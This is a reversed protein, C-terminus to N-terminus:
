SWNCVSQRISRAGVYGRFVYGGKDDGSPLLPNLRGERSWKCSHAKKKKQGSKIQQLTKLSDTGPREVSESGLALRADAQRSSCPEEVIGGGAIVDTGETETFTPLSYVSRSAVSDGMSSGAVSPFPSKGATYHSTMAHAGSGGRAKLLLDELMSYSALPRELGVARAFQIMQDASFSTTPHGPDLYIPPNLEFCDKLLSKASQSPYYKTREKASFDRGLVEDMPPVRVMGEGKKGMGVGVIGEDAQRPAIGELVSFGGSTVFSEPVGESTVTENGRSEVAGVTRSGSAVDFMVAKCRPEEQRGLVSSRRKTYIPWAARKPTSTVTVSGLEERLIRNIEADPSFRRGDVGVDGGTTVDPCVSQSKGGGGREVGVDGWLIEEVNGCERWYNKGCERRKSM